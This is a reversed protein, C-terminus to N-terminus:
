PTAQAPPPLQWLTFREFEASGEETDRGRKWIMLGPVVPGLSHDLAVAPGVASDNVYIELKRGGRCVVLLKNFEDGSKFAPPRIPGATTLPAVGIGWSGNGVEVLGDRRLRISWRVLSLAWGSDGGTRVRGIVQCAFDSEESQGCDEAAWRHEPYKPTPFTQEVFRGDEIRFDDSDPRRIGFHCKDPNSFDDDILPIVGSLDPAPDGAQLDRDPPKALLVPGLPQPRKSSESAGLMLYTVAAAILVLVM